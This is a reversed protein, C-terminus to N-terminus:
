PGIEPWDPTELYRPGHLGFDHETARFKQSVPRGIEVKSGLSARLQFKPIVKRMYM